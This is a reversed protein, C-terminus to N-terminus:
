LHRNARAEVIHFVQSCSCVPKAANDFFRGLKVLLVSSGDTSFQLLYWELRLFGPEKAKEYELKLSELLHVMDKNNM